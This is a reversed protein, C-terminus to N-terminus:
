SNSCCVLQRLRELLKVLGWTDQACYRLLDDRLRQTAEPQFTNGHFLSQVLNLSASEGDTIALADYRLEPVLAPLVRKLSFSGCFDPQYIHSRVVPLLDILRAAVENLPEALRPVARALHQLCGREFPANYAVVALAGACATVVREGNWVPIALRVTEFDLFALPPVFAELAQALGPEVVVQGTRVARRQRDAIVSLAM